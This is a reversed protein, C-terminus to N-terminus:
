GGTKKKYEELADRAKLAELEAADRAKQASLAETEKEQPTKEKAAAEARAKEIAQIAGTVDTAVGAMAASAGAASSGTEFGFEKPTGTASNFAVVTKGKALPKYVVPSVNFTSLQSMTISGDFRVDPGVTVKAPVRTPLRYVLGDVSASENGFLSHTKPAVFRKTGNEYLTKSMTLTVTVAPIANAAFTRDGIDAPAAQVSATYQDSNPQGSPAAFDSLELMRTYTVDELRRVAGNNLGSRLALYDQLVKVEAMLEVIKKANNVGGAAALTQIETQIAGIRAHISKEPEPLNAANAGVAAVKAISIGTSVIDKIVDATKDTAEAEIGELIGADSVKFKVTTALLADNYWDDASLFFTNAKDPLLVPEIVVPKAVEVSKTEPSVRVGNEVKFETVKTYTITVKLATKPLSYVIGRGQVPTTHGADYVASKLQRDCGTLMATALALPFLLSAATPRSHHPSM